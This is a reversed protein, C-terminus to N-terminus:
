IISSITLLFIESSMVKGMFHNIKNAPSTMANAAAQPLAAVGNADLVASGEAVPVGTSGAVPVGMGEGILVAIGVGVEVGTSLAASPTSVPETLM